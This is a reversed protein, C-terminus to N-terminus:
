AAYFRIQLANKLEKQLSYSFSHSPSRFNICCDYNPKNIKLQSQNCHVQIEDTQTRICMHIHYIHMLRHTNLVNGLACLAYTYYNFSYCYDYDYYYYFVIFNQLPMLCSIFFFDVVVIVSVCITFQRQGYQSGGYSTERWFSINLISNKSKRQCFKIKVIECLKCLYIQQMWHNFTHYQFVSSLLCIPSVSTVGVGVDDAISKSLNFLKLSLRNTCSSASRLHAPIHLFLCKFHCLQFKKM